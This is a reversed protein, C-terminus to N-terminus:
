VVDAGLLFWFCSIATRWWKGSMADRQGTVDGLTMRIWKKGPLEINLDPLLAHIPSIPPAVLADWRQQILVPWGDM